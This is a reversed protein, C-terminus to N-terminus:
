LLPVDGTVFSHRYGLIYNNNIDAFFHICEEDLAIREFLLVNPVSM